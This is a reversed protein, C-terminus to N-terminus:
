MGKMKALERELREVKALLALTEEASIGLLQAQETVEETLKENEARLKAIENEFYGDNYVENGENDYIVVHSVDGLEIEHSCQHCLGVCAEKSSYAAEAAAEPTDAGVTISTGATYCINANYKM